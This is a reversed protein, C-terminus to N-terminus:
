PLPTCTKFATHGLAVAAAPISSVKVTGRTLSLEVIMHVVSQVHNHVLVCEHPAAYKRDQDHARICVTLVATLLAVAAVTTEHRGGAMSSEVVLMLEEWGADFGPLVARLVQGCSPAWLIM